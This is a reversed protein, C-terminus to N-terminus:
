RIRDGAGTESPEPHAPDTRAATVGTEGARRSLRAMRHATPVATAELPHERCWIEVIRTEDPRRTDDLFIVADEALWPWCFPVAGLRSLPGAAGPPGDVLLLNVREGAALPLEPISYWLSPIGYFERQELPFCLLDVWERLQHRELLQEVFRAWQADHELVILRGQGRVKLAHAVYLTSIGSGCEVVCAAGAMDLTRLVEQVASPPLSWGSWPLPTSFRPDLLGLLARVEVLEMRQQELKRWLLNKWHRGAILLVVAAGIVSGTPGWGPMVWGVGASLAILVVVMFAVPLFQRGARAARQLSAEPWHRVAPQM